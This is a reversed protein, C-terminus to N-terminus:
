SLSYMNVVAHSFNLTWMYVPLRHQGGGVFSGVYLNAPYFPISTNRERGVARGEVVARGLKDGPAMAPM